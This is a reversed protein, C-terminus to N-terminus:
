TKVLSYVRLYQSTSFGDLADTRTSSLSIWSSSYKYPDLASMLQQPSIGIFVRTGSLQPFRDFPRTSTTTEVTVEAIGAVRRVRYVQHWWICAARSNCSEDALIKSVMTICHCGQCAALIIYGLPLEALNRLQMMRAQFLEVEMGHVKHQQQKM